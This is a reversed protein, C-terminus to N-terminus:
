LIKIFIFLWWINKHWTKLYLHLVNIRVVSIILDCSQGGGGMLKQEAKNKQGANNHCATAHSTNSSNTKDAFMRGASTRIGQQQETMSPESDKRRFRRLDPGSPTQTMVPNFAAPLFHKCVAARQEYRTREHQWLLLPWSRPAMDSFSSHRGM